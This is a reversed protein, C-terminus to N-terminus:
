LERDPDCLSLLTACRTFATCSTRTSCVVAMSVHRFASSVNFIKPLFYYVSHRLFM